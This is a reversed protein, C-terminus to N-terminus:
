DLRFLGELHEEPHPQSEGSPKALPAPSIVQPREPIVGTTAYENALRALFDGHCRQPKCFCGLKKGVLEGLSFRLDTSWFYAEYLVCVEDRSGQAGLVFPNGWKSGRGIYVEEKEKYRNIVTCPKLVLHEEM